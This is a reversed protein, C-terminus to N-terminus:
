AFVSIDTEIWYTKNGITINSSYSANIGMLEDFYSQLFENHDKKIKNLNIKM